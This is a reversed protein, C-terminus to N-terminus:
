IDHWKKWIVFQLHKDHINKINKKASKSSYDPCCIYMALILLSFSIVYDNCVVMVSPCWTYSACAICVHVLFLNISHYSSICKWWLYIDMASIGFLSHLSKLVGKCRLSWLLYLLHNSFVVKCWLCVGNFYHCLFPLRKFTYIAYVFCLQVFM